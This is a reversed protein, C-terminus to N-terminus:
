LSSEPSKLSGYKAEYLKDYREQFTDVFNKARAKKKKSLDWQSVHGGKRPLNAYLITRGISLVDKIKSIFKDPVHNEYGTGLYGVNLMKLVFAIQYKKRKGFVGEAKFQRIVEIVIDFDVPQQRKFVNLDHEEKGDFYLHNGNIMNLWECPHGDKKCLRYEVADKGAKAHSEDDTVILKMEISKCFFCCHAQKQRKQWSNLYSKHGKNSTKKKIQLRKKLISSILIMNLLYHNIALLAVCYDGFECRIRPYKRTKQGCDQKIAIIHM